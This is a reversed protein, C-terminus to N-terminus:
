LRYVNVYSISYKRKRFSWISSCDLSDIIMCLSNMISSSSHSGISLQVYNLTSRGMGGWCGWETRNLCKRNKNCKNNMYNNNNNNPFCKTM